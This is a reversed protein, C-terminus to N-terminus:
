ARGVRDLQAPADAVDDLVDPQERVLRDRLVDGGHRPQEAPVPRPGPRADALQELEDPRSGRGTRAASGARARPRGAGAPRRPGPARRRGAPAASPRATRRRRGSRAARSCPSNRRMWRSSPLVTTSTVWSMSSATRSPSRIATSLRPRCARAARAVRHAHEDAGALGATASRTPEPAATRRSEGRAARARRGPGPGPSDRRGGGAGRFQLEADREVVHERRDGLRGAARTGTRRPRRRRDPTASASLRPRRAAGPSRGAAGDQDDGRRYEAGTVVARM